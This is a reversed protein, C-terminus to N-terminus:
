AGFLQFQLQAIRREDGDDHMHILGHDFGQEFMMAAVHRLPSEMNLLHQFHRHPAIIKLLTM